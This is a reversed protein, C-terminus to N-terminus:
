IIMLVDFLLQILKKWHITKLIYIQLSSSFLLFLYFILIFFICIQITLYSLNNYYGGSMGLDIPAVLQSRLEAYSCDLSMILRFGVYCHHLSSPIKLVKKLTASRSVVIHAPTSSATVEPTFSPITSSSSSSSSLASIRLGKPVSGSVSGNTTNNNPQQQFFDNTAAAAAAASAEAANKHEMYCLFYNAVCLKYPSLIYPENLLHETFDLQPFM